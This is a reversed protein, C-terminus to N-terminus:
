ASPDGWVVYRGILTVSADLNTLALSTVIGEHLSRAPVGSSAGPVFSRVGLANVNIQAAPVTNSAGVMDLQVLYGHAETIDGFSLSETSAPDISFRGAVMTEFGDLTVKANTLDPSFLADKRDSDDFIQVLATLDIRM